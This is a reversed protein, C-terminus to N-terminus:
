ENKSGVVEKYKKRHSFFFSKGMHVSGMREMREEAIVFLAAIFMKTCCHWATNVQLGVPGYGSTIECTRM